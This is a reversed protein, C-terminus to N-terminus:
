TLTVADNNWTPVKTIGAEVAVAADRKVNWADVLAALKAANNPLANWTAYDVTAQYDVLGDAEDVRVIGTVTEGDHTVSLVTGTTM